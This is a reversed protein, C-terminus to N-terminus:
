KSKLLFIIQRWTAYVTHRIYEICKYVTEAQFANCFRQPKNCKQGLYLNNHNMECPFLTSGLFDPVSEVSMIVQKDVKDAACHYEVVAFYFLRWFQRCCLGCVFIYRVNQLLAHFVPVNRIIDHFVFVPSALCRIPMAELLRYCSVLSRNRKMPLLTVEHLLKSFKRFLSDLAIQVYILWSNNFYRLIGRERQKQSLTYPPM